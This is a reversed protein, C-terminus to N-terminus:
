KRGWSFLKEYESFTLPLRRNILTEIALCTQKQIKNGGSELRQVQRASLGLEEALQAQTLALIKVRIYKLRETNLEIPPIM